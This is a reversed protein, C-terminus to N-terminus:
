NGTLLGYFNIKISSVSISNFLHHGSVHDLKIGLLLVDELNSVSYIAGSDDNTSDFVEVQKKSFPFADFIVKLVWCARPASTQHPSAFLAVITNM